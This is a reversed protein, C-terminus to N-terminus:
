IDILNFKQQLTGGSGRRDLQQTKWVHRSVHCLQGHYFCIIGQDIQTTNLLETKCGEHMHICFHYM